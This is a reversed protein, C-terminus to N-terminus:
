RDGRLWNYSDIIGQPGVYIVGGLGAIGYLGADIGYDLTFQHGYYKMWEGRTAQRFVGNKFIEGRLFTGAKLDISGLPTSHVGAIWRRYASILGWAFPRNFASAAGAPIDIQHTLNYPVLTNFSRWFRSQPVKSAYLAFIGWKGGIKGVTEGGETIADYSDKTTLHALAGSPTEDAVKALASSEDVTSGAKSLASGKLGARLGFASVVALGTHWLGGRIDGQRFDEYAQSSHQGMNYSDYGLGAIWVGGWAYQV